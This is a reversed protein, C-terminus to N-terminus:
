VYVNVEFNLAASVSKSPLGGPTMARCEIISISSSRQVILHHICSISSSYSYLWRDEHEVDPM